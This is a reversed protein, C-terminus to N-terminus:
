IQIMTRLHQEVGKNDAMANDGAGHQRSISRPLLLGTGLGMGPRRGLGAAEAGALGKCQPEAARGPGPDGHGGLGAGARGASLIGGHLCIWAHPVRM